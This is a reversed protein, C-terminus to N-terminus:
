FLLCQEIYQNSSLYGLLKRPYDNIWTEIYQIYADTYQSIDAGKPVFRRILKNCNENSGREFASYPHCFYVKTRSLKKNLCSKELGAVDLFECGNDCTVTKFERRFRVAGLLRELRNLCAIVNKSTKDKLKFIYEKRTMRETLVLLCGRKGKGSVVTDMEWHGYELRDSATKPRDEISAGTRNHLAVRVRKNERKRGNKKVPLDKNTVGLFLGKEIYNYLTKFCIKTKFELNHRKIYALLASPSYKKEGIMREVFRVFDYDNGIKYDRGKNSVNENHRRQAVDAKYVDYPILDSGLLTVTGLKLERYITSKSKGISEAIERVSAKQEMFAEIKYRERETIYKNKM